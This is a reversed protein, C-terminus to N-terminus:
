DSLGRAIISYAQLWRPLPSRYDVRGRYRDPGFYRDRYGSRFTTPYHDHIDHQSQFVGREFELAAEIKEIASRLDCPRRFRIYDNLCHKAYKLLDRSDRNCVHAWARAVRSKALIVYRLSLCPDEYTAYLYDLAQIMQSEGRFGCYGHHYARKHGAEASNTFAGVGLLAAMALAIGTKRNNLMKM